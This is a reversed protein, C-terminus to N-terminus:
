PVFKTFNCHLVSLKYKIGDTRRNFSEEDYYKCTITKFLNEPMIDALRLQFQNNKLLNTYVMKTNKFEVCLQYDTLTYFPMDSVNLDTTRCKISM